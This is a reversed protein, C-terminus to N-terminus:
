GDRRGAAIEAVITYGGVTLGELNQMVDTVVFEGSQANRPLAISLELRRQEYGNMAVEHLLIDGQTDRESSARQQDAAMLLRGFYSRGHPTPMISTKESLQSEIHAASREVRADDAVRHFVGGELGHRSDTSQNFIDEYSAPTAAGRRVALHQVRAVVTTRMAMPAINNIRLSLSVVQGAGGQIVTVNRQGAHRDFQPQFPAAIPDNIDCTSNVLLCQHGAGTPVWPTSCRVRASKHYPVEVWESGILNMQGPGLGLSPDAWYFDLRTPRAQAKGLNFVRASVFNAEGAVPNGLSDSSKVSIDPSAWFVTNNPLPRGKGNDNATYRLVLWPTWVRSRIDGHPRGHEDDRHDAPRHDVRDRGEPERPHDDKNRM